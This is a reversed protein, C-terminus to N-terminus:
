IEKDPFAPDNGLVICVDVQEYLNFDEADAGKAEKGVHRDQREPHALHDADHFDYKIRQYNIMLM